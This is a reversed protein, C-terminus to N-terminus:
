QWTSDSSKYCTRESNNNNYVMYTLLVGIVVILVITFGQFIQLRKVANEIRKHCETLAKFDPSFQLGQNQESYSQGAGHFANGNKTM